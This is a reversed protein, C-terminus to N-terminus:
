YRIQAIHGGSIRVCYTLRKANRKQVVSPWCMKEDIGVINEDIPLRNSSTDFRREALQM